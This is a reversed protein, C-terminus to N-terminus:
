YVNWIKYSGLMVLQGKDQVNKSIELLADSLLKDEQHGEIDVHMISDDIGSDNTPLQRTHMRPINIKRRYLPEVIDHIHGYTNKHPTYMISTRDNGTPNTKVHGTPAIIYFRTMNNGQDEISTDLIKLGCKRATELPGIAASNELGNAVHTMAASTNTSSIETAKPYNTRRYTKTQELAKPHSLIQEINETDNTTAICLSIPHIVESIIEIGGSDLQNYTDVVEGAIKNQVPVIGLENTDRVHQFVSEITDCYIRELNTEPLQSDNIWSTLAYDSYTGEQLVAVGEQHKNKDLYEYLPKMGGLVNTKM